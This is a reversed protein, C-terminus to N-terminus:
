TWQFICREIKNKASIAREKNIFVELCEKTPSTRDEITEVLLYCKM